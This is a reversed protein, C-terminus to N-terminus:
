PGVVLLARSTDPLSLSQWGRPDELDLCESKRARERDEWSDLCESHELVAHDPGLLHEWFETRRVSNVTGLRGLGRAKPAGLRGLKKTIWGERSWAGDKQTSFTNWHERQTRLTTKITWRQQKDGHGSTGTAM